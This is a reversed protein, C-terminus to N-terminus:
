HKNKMLLVLLLGSQQQFLPFLSIFVLVYSHHVKSKMADTEDIENKVAAEETSVISTAFSEVAKSNDM